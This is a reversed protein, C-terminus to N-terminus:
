GYGLERLSERAVQREDWPQVHLRGDVAGIISQEHGKGALLVTDGAGARRLAARIAEGRDAICEFHRGQMAGGASAGAAIEALIQQRDERRPDEDTLIFYDAQRAAIRGMLPRKERDREGASGFVCLLKGSTQRRLFRLVESLSDPTHAFDVVVTFPQGAEIREMRGSVGRQQALAALAVELPVGLSCGATLAALANYVNFAGPIPVLLEGEGWASVLRARSSWGDSRVDLARVQAGEARLAYSVVPVPARARLTGYSAQDDANLVAAKATVGRKPHQPDPRLLDLLKGKADLYAEYSGHYELHEHTVRTVVAVDFECGALRDQHLAHSTTELVAHTGGGALTEALLAQIEVAEPTSTHAQNARVAGTSKSAVTTVMGTSLGGAELIATTLTCTTTKGDTGTVGVLGLRSAPFGYFAAALWGLASPTHRVQVVPVPPIGPPFTVARQVVVAAAGAQVAGTVFDHGDAGYGPHWVAVFLSGPGVRRSDYCVGTIEADTEAGAGAISYPNGPPIAALLQSLKM